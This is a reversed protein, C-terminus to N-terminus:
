AATSRVLDSPLHADEVLRWGEHVLEVALLAVESAMADLQPLAQYRSVWANFVLYRRLRSQGGALTHSAGAPKHGSAPGATGRPHLLPDWVDIVVNRKVAVNKGNADKPATGTKVFDLAARAWAELQGNLALGQELTIPDWTAKDPNAYRHLTNGGEWVESAAISVNLGSVRKVGAVYSDGAVTLSTLAEQRRVGGESFAEAPPELLGVRFQYTRLPDRPHADKPGM